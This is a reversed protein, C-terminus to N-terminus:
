RCSLRRKMFGAISLIAIGFLAEILPDPFGIEQISGLISFFSSLAFIPILLM